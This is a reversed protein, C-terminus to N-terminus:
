QTNMQVATKIFSHQIALYELQETQVTHQHQEQGTKDDDDDDCIYTHNCDVKFTIFNIIAKKYLANFFSQQM